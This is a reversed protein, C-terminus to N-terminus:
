QVEEEEGRKRGIANLLVIADHREWVPKGNMDMKTYITSLRPGPVPLVTDYVAKIGLIKPQVLVPKCGFNFLRIFNFNSKAHFLRCKFYPPHALPHPTYEHTDILQVTQISYFPKPEPELFIDFAYYFFVHLPPIPPHPNNLLHISPFAYYFFSCYSYSARTSWKVSLVLVPHTDTGSVYRVKFRQVGYRTGTGYGVREPTNEDDWRRSPFATTGTCRIVHTVGEFISPDLDGENRTDGKFVEHMNGLNRVM